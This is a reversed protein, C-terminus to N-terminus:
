NTRDLADVFQMESTGPNAFCVDVGVRMCAEFLARPAM